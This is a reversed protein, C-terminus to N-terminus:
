ANSIRKLHEEVSDSHYNGKELDKHSEILAAELECERLYNYEEITLVVYKSKGRVTIIAENDQATAEELVSVGKVKLENATISNNM